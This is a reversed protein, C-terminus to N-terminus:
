AVRIESNVNNPGVVEAAKSEVIEKERQSRVPGKLTVSGDSTIIKINHAYTSLAKDQMLARRIRRTTELDSSNNKQQDATVRKSDRDRQNAKTNDPSPQQQTQ